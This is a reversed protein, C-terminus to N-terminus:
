RVVAERVVPGGSARQAPVWELRLTQGTRTLTFKGPPLNKAAASKIPYAHTGDRWARHEGAVLIEMEGDVLEMAVAHWYHARLVRQEQTWGYALPLMATAFIALAVVMDVNLAGREPRRADEGATSSPMKGGPSPAHLEADALGVARENRRAPLGARRCALVGAAVLQQFPM